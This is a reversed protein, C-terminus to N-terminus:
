YNQQPILFVVPRGSTSSAQACDVVLLVANFKATPKKFKSVALHPGPTM